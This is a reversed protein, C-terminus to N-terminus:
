VYMEQLVNAEGEREIEITKDLENFVTDFEDLSIDEPGTLPDEEDEATLFPPKWM